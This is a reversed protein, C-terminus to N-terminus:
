ETAVASNIDGERLRAPYVRELRARSVVGGQRGEKRRGGEREGWLKEWM